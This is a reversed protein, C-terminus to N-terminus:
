TDTLPDNKFPRSPIASFFLWLIWLLVLGSYSFVGWIYSHALDFYDRAHVGVWFLTFLRLLNGLFVASAAIIAGFLRSANSTPYALVVSLFLVMQPIGSCETVIDIGFVGPLVVKQGLVMVPMGASQLLGGVLTALVELLPELLKNAPSLYLLGAGAASYLCFRLGFSVTQKGTRVLTNEM